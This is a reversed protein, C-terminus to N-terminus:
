IGVIHSEAEYILEGLIRILHDAEVPKNLHANMGAKLSLQVDEDFASATLAIIPIRKADERDLSRIARTAELGDLKPMRVDMLIASYIGATSEEFLKVAEEGNEAHDAKINEMELVNMMIEANIEMDEALLIRRGELRATKKVKLLDSDSRSIIRELNELVSSAYLPKELYNEVGVSQAEESNDAWNYATMAVVFIEKGYRKFIEESMESGSMTPMDWDMLVITYPKKRAHQLEIKSLAEQGSTCIDAKIGVEGLVMSAHEAEIPNDDVVLLKMDNPDFRVAKKMEKVDDKELTVTVTFETGVGKESEVGITGNMMDVVKKTIALGLGSGGSRFSSRTKELSYLEFVLHLNEKDIGIGTDKVCFRISAKDDYEKTKEVTMTISGPANTFKVANSLITSIM